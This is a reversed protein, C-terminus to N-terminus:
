SASTIGSGDFHVSRSKAARAERKHQKDVKTESSSRPLQKISAMENSQSVMDIQSQTRPPRPPGLVTADNPYIGWIFTLCLDSFM